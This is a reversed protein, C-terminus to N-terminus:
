SAKSSNCFFCLSSISLSTLWSSLTTMSLEDIDDAVTEEISEADVDDGDYKFFKVSVGISEGGVVDERM